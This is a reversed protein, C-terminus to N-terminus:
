RRTPGGRRLAPRGTDTVRGARVRRGEVAQRAPESLPGGSWTEDLELLATELHRRGPVFSAPRACPRVSAPRQGTCNRSWRSSPDGSTQRLRDLRVTGGRRGRVPLPRDRLALRAPAALRGTQSPIPAVVFRLGADNFRSRPTSPAGCATSRRRAPPASGRRRTSTTSPSSTASAAPTAVEWHYSGAGVAAYEVVAADFGWGEHLAAAVARHELGEPMTRVSRVSSTKTSMVM